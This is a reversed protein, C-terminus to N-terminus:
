FGGVEGGGDQALDGRGAREVLDGVNGVGYSGVDEPVAIAVRNSSLKPFRHQEADILGGRVTRLVAEAEAEDM